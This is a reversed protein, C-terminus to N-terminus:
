KKEQVRLQERRTSSFYGGANAIQLRTQDLAQKKAALDAAKTQRLAELQKAAEKADEAESLVKQVSVFGIPFAARTQANSTSSGFAAVLALAAPITYRRM